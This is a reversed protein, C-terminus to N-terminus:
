ASSQESLAWSNITGALAQVSVNDTPLVLDALGYRERRADLLAQLEARARPHDRMPRLDGQDVVRQWLTDASASLWVTRCTARLRDYTALDEVLSGGTALVGSGHQTLWHELSEAQLQRYFREGHLAFLQALNTGAREEVLQDLEVFPVELHQALLRGVSSKGAGRVGLLALRLTPAQSLDLDCLERLPVRLARALAALKLLSLNAQGGEAMRLYRTSLDAKSATETM